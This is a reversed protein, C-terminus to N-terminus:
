PVTSLNIAAITNSTIQLPPEPALVVLFQCQRLANSNLEALPISEVETDIRGLQLKLLTLSNALSYAAHEQAYAILTHSNTGVAPLPRVPVPAAAGLASSALMVLFVVRANM